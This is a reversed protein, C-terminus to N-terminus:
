GAAILIMKTQSLLLGLPLYVATMIFRGRNYYVGALQLQGQGYAQSVLTEQACNVGALVLRCFMGLIMSGLGVGALKAASDHEFQGAFITNVTMVMYSFVNTVISPIALSMFLKFMQWKTVEIPKNSKVAVFDDLEFHEESLLLDSNTRTQITQISPNNQM